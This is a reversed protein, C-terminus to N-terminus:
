GPSTRESLVRLLVKASDEGRKVQSRLSHTLPRLVTVLPTTVCRHIHRHTCTHARPEALGPRQSDPRFELPVSM